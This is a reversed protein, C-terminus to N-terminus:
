YKHIWVMKARCQFFFFSLFRFVFNLKKKFTLQNINGTKQLVPASLFGHQVLGSCLFFFKLTLKAFNAFFLSFEQDGKWVDIIRDDRNAYFVKNDLNFLVNCYFMSEFLNTLMIQFIKKEMLNHFIGLEDFTVLNRNCCM